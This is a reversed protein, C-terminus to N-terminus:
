NGFISQNTGLDFSDNGFSSDSSAPASIVADFTFDAAGKGKSQIPQHFDIEFESRKAPAEAQTKEDAQSTAVAQAPVALRGIIPQSSQTPVIDFIFYSSQEYAQALSVCILPLILTAILRRTRPLSRM